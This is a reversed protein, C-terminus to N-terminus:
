SLYAVIVFDVEVDIGPTAIPLKGENSLRIVIKGGNELTYPMSFLKQKSKQTISTSQNSSFYSVTNDEIEIKKHGPLAPNFTLVESIDILTNEINSIAGDHDIKYVHDEPIDQITAGTLDPTYFFDLDINSLGDSSFDTIESEFREIQTINMVLGSDNQIILYSISNKVLVFNDVIMIIKGNKAFEFSENDNDSVGNSSSTM